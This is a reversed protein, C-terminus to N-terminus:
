DDNKPPRGVMFVTVWDIANSTGRLLVGATLAFLIMLAVYVLQRPGTTEGLTFFLLAAGFLIVFAALWRM